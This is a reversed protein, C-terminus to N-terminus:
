CVLAILQKSPRRDSPAHTGPESSARHASAGLFSNWGVLAEAHPHLTSLKPFADSPSSDSVRPPGNMTTWTTLGPLQMIYQTATDSPGLSVSISLTTLSPGCRLAASSVTSNLDTLALVTDISLDVKLSQLSSTQLEAIMSPLNPLIMDPDRGPILKYASSFTTLRPSIFHRYFPLSYSQAVWILDRLGPCVTGNLSNLSIM